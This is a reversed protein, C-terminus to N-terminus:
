RITRSPSVRSVTSPLVKPRTSAMIDREEGDISDDSLFAWLLPAGNPKTVEMAIPLEEGDETTYQRVRDPAFDYGLAGLVLGALQTIQIGVRIDNKRPLRSAQDLLTFYRGAVTKLKDFPAREESAAAEERWQKITDMANQEFVSSFYHNTYYENQNRIGTLDM